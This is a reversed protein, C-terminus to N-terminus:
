AAMELLKLWRGQLTGIGNLEPVHLPTRGALTRHPRLFNYDAVFLTTLASAGNLDKHGSRSRTHYRYTRNVREIIQKFARFRRSEEDNNRLGVVTRRELKKDKVPLPMGEADTNVANTAADYSPNGDGILVLTGVVHPDRRDLTQNIAAVAPFQDRGESVNWAWIARSEVGIVFWTYHWVGKVKIYTEDAAASMETMAGDMRQKLTNWVLPAAANMWNIVTQHSAPIGHIERLAWSTMRSSLGLSVSYALALGVSNMSRRVSLLSSNSAHPSAPRISAPDYHLVAWQYHLKFQSRMGSKQLLKEAANLKSYASRYHPCKRDPCKYITRNDDQKWKYMAYGCHPCWFPGQATHRIRRVPSLGDCIKCRLQSCKKGDNVYLWEAPANCHECRCDAPPVFSNCHRRVPRRERGTQARHRSLLERWDQDAPPPSAEPATTLPPTDPVTFQRYNPHEERFQSQLRIDKRKGHFVDLLISIAEILENETLQSCFWHVLGTITRM